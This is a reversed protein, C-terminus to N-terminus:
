LKRVLSHFSDWFELNEGYKWSLKVVANDHLNLAEAFEEPTSYGGKFRRALSDAAPVVPMSKLLCRMRPSGMMTRRAFYNFIFYPYGISRGVWRWTFILKFYKNSRLLWLWFRTWWNSQHRSALPKAGSTLYSLYLKRWKTLFESNPHAAIFYTGFLRDPNAKRPCAFGGPITMPLWLDLPKLCLLTSDAWVGGHRLLLALRLLNSRKQIPMAVQPLLEDWSVWQTLNKNSLSIVNWGPNKSKWSEICIKVVNPAFEIGEDWYLFINKPIEEGLSKPLAVM